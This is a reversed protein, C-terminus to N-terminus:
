AEVPPWPAAGLPSPLGLKGPNLVGAPDLLQKLGCLVGFAGEGLASSVFRGRNLGIGHHHSLAGGLELTTLTVTDWAEIYAAEAEAGGVAADGSSLRRAWTFYLCAGDTYAHSQHASAALMGPLALLREVVTTYLRGLVSWRGAVEVTDLVIGRSVLAPLASVDNRHELWTDLLSPELRAVGPTAACEANVAALTAETVLHDGEDLVVLANTGISFTRESETQDYLRLVAPTAGRRLIRRCADLGDAFSPFGWATRGESEPVPRVRLLAETIVGLTGESGVFLQTLDPGVASRPARGGTVLSTGDALAVTLGAALDEIKGYRTSYQGASRCALWGGVTSLQMSQPWHGLTVGYTARLEDEFVDGFTGPLVRVLLSHDDIDAIGSMATLDLAVGGFVPVSAGCVGSRGAMPTVPVSSSSCLALVAAVDTGSAPRAIVGPRAPVQGAVAWALALPWWDRGAEDLAAEAAEIPCVSALREVFGDPLEVAPAALHHGLRGPVAGSGFEIPPTPEGRRAQMM